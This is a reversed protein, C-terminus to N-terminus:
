PWLRDLNLDGAQAIAKARSDVGLKSYIAAVHHEVTKKSVFLKEAIEGNSLGDTVLELVELQRNTLGAPNSATEKTPGRPISDAGLDRLRSRVLNGAPKAGLSDFIGLSQLMAGEDGESLALAMEYPCGIEEWAQAAKEWEGSMQLAFPTAANDPPGSIQGAKWMWYGIEGQAWQSDTELAQRYAEELIPVMKEQSGNLWHYEALGCMPSWVHQLEHGKGLSLVEELIARADPDGLRVRVRGLAGKATVVAIGRRSIATRDVLEAHEIAEDWRGQEFAVRALWSRSYAVSYDLDTALGQEVSEELAAISVDYLRAEGAGSGLMSLGVGIKQHDDLRKAEAVAEQLEAAGRHADGVVVSICGRMMKTMWLVDESGVKGAIAAAEDIERFAPEAHRSLMHFHSSMHLVYALDRSPGLDRLLSVAEDTSARSAERDTLRWQASALHTLAKALKAKNDSQRYRDVALEAEELAEKQLDVMGLEQSLEVRLDAVTDQDILQGHRLAARYFEIAEKHAGRKAALGAAVPAYELILEPEHAGIAHHALRAPDPPEDELLLAIMRSHLAYRKGPLMSDEVASRALEHRFRLNTGDGLIVGSGVAQDVEAATAGLLHMAWDVGLARPAISVAEVISRSREELRSVRAIVADQVSAPLKEDGALIETVFFANGGTIRYIENPDVERGYALTAVAKESLAPVKLRHTTELATLQGLIASLPHAPGIEDDRYTTIIVAKSTEIRRGMFRLFDLTAQDAWHIDEVLMVIPRITHRVRELVRNFIEINDQTEEFLQGLGSDTDAAFDILPSLPRPTSLPDCAGILTLAREGVENLFARILSTKGSGAEGAVLLVSGSGDRAQELRGMLEKLLEERELLITM